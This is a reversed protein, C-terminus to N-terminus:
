AATLELAQGDWVFKFPINDGDPKTIDGTGLVEYTGNRAATLTITAAIGDEILWNLSQLVISELENIIEDTIKGLRKLTWLRSGILDGQVDALQDAWWGEPDNIGPPLDEEAVRRNSHLSILTPTHLTNDPKLSGNEIVLDPCATQVDFFGVGQFNIM